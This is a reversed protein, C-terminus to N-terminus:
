KDEDKKKHESLDIIRSSKEVSDNNPNQPPVDETFFRLLLVIPPILAAYLLGELLAGPAAAEIIRPVDNFNGTMWVVQITLLVLTAALQSTGTIMGFSIAQQHQLHVRNTMQWGNVGALVFWDLLIPLWFMWTTVKFLTAVLAIIIVVLLSSWIGVAFMLALAFIGAVAITQTGMPLVRHWQVFALGFTALACAISIILNKARSSMM